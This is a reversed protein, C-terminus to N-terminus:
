SFFSGTYICDICNPPVQKNKFSTRAAVFGSDKSNWLNEFNDSVINGFPYKACSCSIVDHNQLLWTASYLNFCNKPKVKGAHYPLEKFEHSVLSPFKIRLKVGLKKAEACADNISKRTIDINNAILHHQKIEKTQYDWGEGVSLSPIEHKHCLTVLDAIETVNFSFTCMSAGLVPRNTKHTKKLSNLHDINVLIADLEGGKRMWRYTESNPSDISIGVGICYSGVLKRNIQESFLSGNTVLNYPIKLENLLDVLPEIKYYFMPEGGHLKILCLYDAHEKLFASLIKFDMEDPHDYDFLTKRESSKLCMICKYNCKSTLTLILIPPSKVTRKSKLLFFIVAMFLNIIKKVTQLRLLEILLSIRTFIFRFTIMFRRELHKGEAISEAVVNV